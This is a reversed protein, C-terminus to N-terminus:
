YKAKPKIEHAVGGWAIRYDRSRWRVRPKWLALAFLSPGIAERLWWAIAFHFKSFPLPGQQAACLLLWDSLFWALAHLLYVAAPEWGFLSRCALAAAVGLVLCESLPELLIMLPLMSVRLQAWRHLRELFSTLSYSGANQWAPQGAVRLRWGHATLAKALFFDEALYDAFAALGGIDDLAERRVLSSMGVHCNIRLLDAALYIRAQATGFYVKEFTAAFGPRDCTFPMQHVLGVKDHQLMHAMMDLLTDPRMRVGADSILLFAHAAQQLAPQMNNIKPNVGVRSGGSCVLKASVLPHQEILQRVVLAAPDAEEEVCFLLEFHPYEMTFFTALNARLNPDAGLLPKVVSVGPLAQEGAGAGAGGGVPPHPPTRHLRWRAAWLAVCHLAWLFAWGLLVVACLLRGAWWWGGGGAGAGGGVGWAGALPM